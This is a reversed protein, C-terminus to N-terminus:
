QAQGRRLGRGLRRGTFQGDRVAFQGGLLVHHVGTALRRPSEYTARDAITDPDLVVVDAIAGVRLQGRDTLGFRRAPHGALHLSAEGWTWDGRERTHRGLLRAFAGWGRPHPASGLFIADSGVMQAEHRLLARVDQETNTPPQAFVCGVGLNTAVALECVLEGATMGARDAADPLYMGEAWRWEDSAIYSLRIRPLVDAIGPFYTRQLDARVQPDRLQRLTEAPGDQQLSSPLAVMPVITSGRLYPYSDFTLDVGRARAENVLAVIMRSPGHLHSIHVPVGADAGIRSAEALGRWADAEYGRMHSVYVGGHEALPHCMAALEDADAFGGPVYELGTSLGVAGEDLAQEVLSQIRALEAATAGGRRYEMVLHRISGAPATYAINLWSHEDCYALYDAVSCGAALPQPCSGNVAAFYQEVTRITRSTGPAFSLGDQGAILTTVGQSLAAQAVDADGVLADIHAHTDIFGPFIYRGTVDLVDHGTAAARDRTDASGGAGAAGTGSATIASIRGDALVLDARTPPAGTGDVLWGGTLTVDRM